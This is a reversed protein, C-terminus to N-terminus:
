CEIEGPHLNFVVPTDAGEPLLVAGVGAHGECFERTKEVGMIYFATALADAEAATPAIASASAIGEAPWGTRPDLIHGLKRGNHELHRYTSGSTGLARDRLRVVGFRREPQAPHSLGVTWGHNSGPETGMAYVSSNGGHLLGSRIGSENRLLAATRDLAYGKGISGLNIELGRRHYRVTRNEEDLVVQRMGVRSLAEALEGPDPVRRPGRHFGWAKILAGTTIDFAGATQRTLRQALQLLGFLQQEVSVAEYAARQNLLSVESVDQYVTLQTELADILDLASEAAAGANPTGLPLAVEFDTAMATRIFRLLAFEESQLEALSTRLGEVAGLVHGATQALSKPALFDRRNM